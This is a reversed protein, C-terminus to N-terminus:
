LDTARGVSSLRCYTSRTCELAVWDPENCARAIWHVATAARRGHGTRRRCQLRRRAVVDLWTTSKANGGIPEARADFGAAVLAAARRRAGDESGYRGLAIANAEDGDRVILFDSFGAAAIRQAMAQAAEPSALPPMQVRWGRAPSAPQERTAVASSWRSCARARLPPRQRMPSLVSVSANRPCRHRPQSADPEKTMVPMVAAPRVMARKPAEELLQLRAIGPPQLLVPPPPSPRTAWWTAVGLNLVLLLVILARPLMAANYAARAVPRDHIWCSNMRAGLARARGTGARTRTRCGATAAAVCPRRRRAAALATSRGAVDHGRAVSRDILASRRAKAVPHSHTPPIPPSNAM